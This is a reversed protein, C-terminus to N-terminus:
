TAEDTPTESVEGEGQAAAYDAGINVTIDAKVDDDAVQLEAGAFFQSKLLEADAKRKPKHFLTTVEYSTEADAIALIEYGSEELLDATDGALGSVETGNLVQVSIESPDLPSPQSRIPPATTAPSTPAATLTTEEDVPTTPAASDGPLFAKSLVLLGLALAAVVLLGRLAATALSLYFTTQSPPGHRGAM